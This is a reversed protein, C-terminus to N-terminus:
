WSERAGCSIVAHSTSEAMSSGSGSLRCSVRLFIQFLRQCGGDILREVRRYARRELAHTEAGDDLFFVSSLGFVVDHVEDSPIRKGALIKM